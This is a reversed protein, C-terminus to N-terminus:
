RGIRRYHAPSHGTLKKFFSGFFSQNPFNLMESVDQVTYQSQGLLVKAELVVREDIWEKASKGTADKVLRSMYKTTLCLKDAYFSLDRKERFNNEVFSIFRQFVFLSYSVDSEAEAIERFHRAVYFTILNLCSVFLERRAPFEPQAIRAKVMTYVKLVDELDEPTMQVDQCRYMTALTEGSPLEFGGPFKFNRMLALMAFRTGDKIDQIDVITDKRIILLSGPVLNCEKRNLMIRAGGTKCIALVTVRNYFTDYLKDVLSSVAQERMQLNLEEADLNDIMLFDDREAFDKDFLIRELDNM